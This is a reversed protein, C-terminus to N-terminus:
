RGDNRSVAELRATTEKIQETVLWEKLELYLGAARDASNRAELIIAYLDRLRRMLEKERAEALDM